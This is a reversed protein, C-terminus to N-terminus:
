GMLLEDVTVGYISAIRILRDTKPATKSNEWQSVAAETVGLLKAAMKQTLGARERAEKINM